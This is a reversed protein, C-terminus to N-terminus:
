ALCVSGLQDAPSWSIMRGSSCGICPGIALAGDGKVPTSGCTMSTMRDRPCRRPSRFGVGLDHLVQGREAPLRDAAVTLGDRAGTRLEPPTPETAEPKLPSAPRRRRPRSIWLLIGVGESVMVKYIRGRRPM